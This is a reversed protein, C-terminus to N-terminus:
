FHLLFACIIRSGNIHFEGRSLNSMGGSSNFFFFTLAIQMLFAMTSKIILENHLKPNSDFRFKFFTYCYIDTTLELKDEEETPKKKKSIFETQYDSLYAAYMRERIKAHDHEKCEEIFKYMENFTKTEEKHIKETIHDLTLRRKKLKSLRESIIVFVSFFSIIADCIIWKDGSQSCNIKRMQRWTSTIMCVHMAQIVTAAFYIDLKIEVDVLPLNVKRKFRGAKVAEFIWISILHIVIWALILIDHNHSKQNEKAYCIQQSLITIDSLTRHYFLIFFGCMIQAINLSFFQSSSTDNMKNRLFDTLGLLENVEMRLKSSPIVSLPDRPHAPDFEYLSMLLSKRWIVKLSLEKKIEKVMSKATM